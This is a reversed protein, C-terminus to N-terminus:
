TAVANVFAMLDERTLPTGPTATDVVRVKGKEIFDGLDSALSPNGLLDGSDFRVPAFSTVNVSGPVAVNNLDYAGLPGGKNNRYKGRPINGSKAGGFMFITVRNVADDVLKGDGDGVFTVKIELMAM